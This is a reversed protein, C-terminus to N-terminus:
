ADLAPLQQPRSAVALLRSELESICGRIAMMRQRNRELIRLPDAAISDADDDVELETLKFSSAGKPGMTKKTGRDAMARALATLKGMEAQIAGKLTRNDERQANIENILDLNETMLKVNMNQHNLTEDALVKQMQRTSRELYEMHRQYESALEPDIQPKVEQSSDHQQVLKEVAEFLHRPSLIHAITLQVDSKFQAIYNEQVKAAARKEGTAVQVSDIQRRLSGILEDLAANSKHYKELEADMDRIQEKMGAIEQQRPEIQRKLERIKFDLVFKFKDLEQNKKKLEYIRKEKDGIIADRAKIEKKHATVEKELARIQEHYVKEKDQLGKQEDRQEDLDRQMVTCKKKMIGNEGKYKLTAERSTMVKDSLVKRMAEIETDVDDELQSALETCKKEMEKKEEDLRERVEVEENVKDDFDATMKEIYAEHSKVLEGRQEQLRDMQADRDRILQQYSEVQEMIHSQFIGELQQMDHQYKEEMRQLRDQYELEVDDREEKCLELKTKAQDLEQVFKDTVEKIKESYNMEKLKLQYEIHVKLEDVKTRLESILATKEELESRTVLSEDTWYPSVLLPSLAGPNRSFQKQRDRLEFLVLTGTDDAMILFMEDLSLRMLTTAGAMCQMETFEGSLPYNYSRLASPKSGENSAALLLNKSSAMELHTLLAEASRGQALSMDEAELEILQKDSGVALINGHDSAVVSTYMNGKNVYDALRKGELNWQYIAGDQGCSLLNFGTKMWRIGKVKGNHGRLDVIKEGTHFDFVSITNGNVAALANGGNSFHCELCSKISLELCPRLEDVLVHFIRLKDTFGVAIHLGSPHLAVSFTDEPFHKCLELVNTQYNWIRLTNDKSTTAFLPKRVCMDLGTIRAPGHFSPQMLSFDETKLTNINNAPVQIMQNDSSTLVLCDEDENLSMSAIAGSTLTTAVQKVMSFMAAAGEGSDAKSADVTYFFLTGDGSGVIIGGDYSIISVVPFDKGPPCDIHCLYESSKFLVLDGADTGAICHDEPARLWCHATFNNGAMVTEQLPRMDREAIRFFKVCDEGTVCAISADIPSFTCRSVPTNASVQLFAVLKAKAWNWCMLTWDPAGTLTLLLQNDESFRMSVFENAQVDQAILTKKRRSTRLDFLHAQPRDGREGVACLKKGVGSTFATIPGEIETTHIFRQRKDEKSYQVVMHGAVYVVMSNDVFSINEAIGGKMGYVHRFGLATQGSM